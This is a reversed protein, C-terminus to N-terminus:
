ANRPKRAALAENVSAVLDALTFPKALVTHILADLNHARQREAAFGTMMVIPMAPWEKAAKLALAIGDMGPMVIDTLLLDFRERALARAAMQGDEVAVIAHGSHGL